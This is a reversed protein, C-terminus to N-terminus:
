HRECIEDSFDLMEGLEVSIAEIIADCLQERTPTGTHKHARAHGNYVGDEICRTLLAYMRVKM